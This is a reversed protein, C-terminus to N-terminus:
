AGDPCAKWANDSLEQMRDQDHFGGSQMESPSIQDVVAAAFCQAKPLATGSSLVEWTIETRLAPYQIALQAQGVVDDEGPAPECARLVAVDGTREVTAGQSAPMKGAWDGIARAAADTDAPTTGQYAAATCTRGDQHYTVSSDGAWGDVLHLADRPDIRESLTIIWTIAGFPGDDVQEAGAPVAPVAVPVPQVGDLYRNVVVLDAEAPPPVEMAKDVQPNGGQEALVKVYPAGLAYPSTFYAVLAEPADGYDAAAAQEQVQRAYERRESSSLTEVYEDEIRTADGEALAQLTTAQPDELDDLKDLFDHQDQWAHTLEHVLTVRHAVDLDTGLVKIENAKPDYFALTGGSYIDQFAQDLDVDPSVLGLARLQGEVNALDAQDQPTTEESQGKVAAEYDSRDLYTIPVPHDFPGGRHQEVFEVLPQVEVPWSRPDTETTGPAGSSAPADTAPPAAAVAAPDDRLIRWGFTAGLIALLLLVVGAGVLRDRAPM